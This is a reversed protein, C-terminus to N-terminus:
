EDFVAITKCKPCKKIIRGKFRGEFLTKKCKPCRYVKM